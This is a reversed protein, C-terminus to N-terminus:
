SRRVSRAAKPAVPKPEMTQVAIESLGQLAPVSMPVPFTYPTKHADNEWTVDVSSTEANFTVGHLFSNPPLLAKVAAVDVPISTVFKSM